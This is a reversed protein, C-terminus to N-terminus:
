AVLVVSGGGQALHPMAARCVAYATELIAQMMARWEDDLTDARPGSGARAGYVSAVGDIGALANGAADCYARAGAVSAIDARARCLADPARLRGRLSDFGRSSRYPVAVRAGQALLMEVLAGGLAGTGGAVVVRATVEERAPERLEPRADGRDLHSPGAAAMGAGDRQRRLGGAPGRRQHVGGGAAHGRGELIARRGQLRPRAKFRAPLGETRRVHFGPEPVDRRTGHPQAPRQLRRHSARSRVGAGLPRRPVHLGAHRRPRPSRGALHAQGGDHVEADLRVRRRAPM